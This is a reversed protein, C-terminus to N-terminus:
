PYTISSNAWRYSVRLGSLYVKPDPSLVNSWVQPWNDPKFIKNLAIKLWNLLGRESWRKGVRKIRNVVRSFASEIANTNLSICEQKELWWDLFTTVSRSLNTIYVRAKPYKDPSLIELLEQFGKKTKEAMQEVLHYDEPQLKELDLKTISMAPLSHLKEKLETQEAKKFGDAYLLYPFDRKGHWQCRQHEMGERLLNELIGPGGDSFLLQLKDYNLREELDKRIASWDTDIWFGILEFPNGSGLSALVWRMEAKGLDQGGPGQLKVSTGDAMLFRYAIDKMSPWQCCKEAFAQLRRHVTSHSVSQGQIRKIENSSCRYSTHVALGIGPELADDLYHDYAPLSLVEPLPAFTGGEKSDKLQRFRYSFKGLSSYLRRANRQHGNYVYRGPESSMMKKIGREELAKLLSQFIAGIIESRSEKIGQIIGNITLGSDPITFKLQLDIIVESM